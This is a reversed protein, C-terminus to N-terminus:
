KLLSDRQIQDIRIHYEQEDIRGERYDTEVKDRQKKLHYEYGGAGAAAGGAAGLGAATWKDSCGTISICMLISVIMVTRKMRGEKRNRHVSSM